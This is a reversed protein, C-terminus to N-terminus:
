QVPPLQNCAADFNDLADILSSALDGDCISSFTGNPGATDVFKQLRAAEFASGFSSECDTPGAIVSTAWRGRAGTLSDLFALSHDVSLYDPDDIGCQDNELVFNNDTRSCDDEDTLIVVALLADERLFDANTGDSLRESFGLELAYLPMEISPGSTGVKALCSFTDKVGSDGREIWRRNMGCEQRFAGNDGTESMPIEGGFPDPLKMSYDIDRGTTTVAIRYDLAAGNDNVYNDIVDFFLPFNNALNSQEESMSGSDDVVFVIDMKTCAEPEGPEIPDGGIDPPTDSTDDGPLPEPSVSTGCGILLLSLSLLSIMRM